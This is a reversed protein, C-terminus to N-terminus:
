PGEIITLDYHYIIEMPKPTTEGDEYQLFTRYPLEVTSTLNNTAIYSGTGNLLVGNSNLNISVDNTSEFMGIPAVVEWSVDLTWNKNGSTDIVEFKPLDMTKAEGIIMTSSLRENLSDV